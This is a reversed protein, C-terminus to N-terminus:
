VLRTALERHETCNLIDAAVPIKALKRTRAYLRDRRRRIHARQSATIRGASLAACLGGHARRILDPTECVLVVDSGAEVALAAAQGIGFHDSIAKMELDDSVVIGDFGLASRLYEGIVVPSLSAPLRPDLAPYVVHATMMMALGQSIARAFPQMELSRLRELDLEVRPLELHSDCSTDGHGPFHKGCGLIGAEALGQLYPLANHIVEEPTTGFARDGIIPNAPNSHVDLVPAFNIHFGLARLERGQARAVQRVLGPDGKQALILAPPFRTCGAPLRDVRGGEHDITFLLDADFEHLEALLTQLGARDPMNRAFLIVGLPKIEALLRRAAADLRPGELGIIMM